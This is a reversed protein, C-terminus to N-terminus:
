LKAIADLMGGQTLIQPLVTPSGDRDFLVYLPVGSRGFKQLFATIEPDQRTWDGKLAVIGQKALAQRVADSDLTAAENILCTVCWAATLNVFAPKREAALERLRAPDFPQYALGHRASSAAVSKAGAPGITAALVIAATLGAAALGAGLRRAVPAALRTRGYVWVAFGVSVLGFLAALSGQPGVEQTLVWVLWAVTGYLPFALLQKFLEMWAGPRPLLGRVGPIFAAAAFPTALGFGLAVFISVAVPAPAILAFGLAAGMFPATCPTAVVSALVGTAFSGAAGSHAAFRSGINTLGIGFEAVGSLSLAMAFLLYALIGVVLPSQLQFGWGIAAGGARLGLMLGGLVAFSLVVGAAYAIGDRRREGPDTAASLSLIKLSLVPFVCPMLNLILGGAFALLLAQWWTVALGDNFRGALARPNASVSFAREGGSAARLLLVGDVTAPPKAPAVNGKPFTIEIGDAHRAVKPTAANDVINADFPFFTADPRELGDYATAPVLLHVEDGNLSFQAEFPAPVPLHRRAAAFLATEANPSEPTVSVPLKLALKAEGPICIEACALWTVDAAIPVSASPDLSAPPTIPVLLDVSGAYGYNGIAGTVFHEPVPWSIDGAAFGSPLHWAITAPLGSDGPNRWYVHWGPKIDLRLDLWLTQGPRVASTEAVLRPTVLDDPITPGAAVAPVGSVLIVAAFAWSCLTASRRWWNEVLTTM